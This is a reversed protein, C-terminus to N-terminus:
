RAIPPVAVQTLPKVLTGGPFAYSVYTSAWSGSATTGWGWVTVGFPEDSKMTHIGNDCNGVKEFNGTVLQVYAYQYKGATGVPQWGTVTGACDLTVDKFTTDPSLVRVVVLSTEPYTPDTLFTYAGLFQAPAVVNVFEPDGAGAFANGGTMHGSVYFPHDLDQSQVVFPQASSAEEFEGQQLTPPAGPPPAPDYSLVTGNVAGVFRWPAPDLMQAAPVRPMHPVAVYEHGLASVPPLEQHATDAAPVDIDINMAEAGGWVGIPKDALIASGTLENTQVFQLYQGKNIGYSVPTNAPAASIGGGGVIDNTPSITVTTNDESALIQLFPPGGRASTRYAMVGVYNKDWTSTPLLLTASAVASSGGGYPYIDYAGVPATTWIHYATGTATGHVAADATAIAPVVGLPCSVNSVVGATADNLFLVAVQGPPLQGGPLSAFVTTPGSGSPVYASQTLTLPTGGYDAYISVPTNWTNTVYAAFCGGVAPGFSDPVISYFDCGYSSGNLRAADCAPICATGGCGQDAPCTKIVHGQCDLISHLDSSCQPSPCAPGGEAQADGFFPVDPSADVLGAEPLEYTPSGPASSSACAAVVVGLGVAMMGRM